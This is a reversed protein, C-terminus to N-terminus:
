ELEGCVCSVLVTKTQREVIVVLRDSIFGTNVLIFIFM